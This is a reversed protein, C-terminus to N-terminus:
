LYRWVGLGDEMMRRECWGGKGRGGGEWDGCERIEVLRGDGM